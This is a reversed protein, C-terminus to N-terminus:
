NRSGRGQLRFARWRFRLRRALVGAAIRTRHWPTIDINRFASLVLSPTFLSSVGPLLFVRAADGDAGLLWHQRVLELVEKRGPPRGAEIEARMHAHRYNLWAHLAESENFALMHQEVAVNKRGRLGVILTEIRARIHIGENGQMRGGLRELLDATQRLQSQRVLIWTDPSHRMHLLLRGYGEVLRLQIDLSISSSPHVWTTVASVIKRRSSLYRGRIWDVAAEREALRAKMSEERGGFARRWESRAELYRGAGWLADAYRDADGSTRPGGTAAFGKIVENRVGMRALLVLSAEARSERSPLIGQSWPNTPSRLSIVSSTGPIWVTALDQLCSSLQDRVIFTEAGFARAERLLAHGDCAAGSLGPAPKASYQLWVVKRGALLNWRSQLYPTADFFDSGSYGAFVLVKVEPDRIIRDLGERVAQPFGNEITGIRAGLQAVNGGPSLSGHFHLPRGTAGLLRSAEEICVDFNATIHQGGLHLHRAFFEHNLNPSALALDSLVDALGPLGYVETLADLVTELRPRFQANLVRLQSYLSSLNAGLGPLFYGTLARDTLTRGSPGATPADISIGAGTWFAVQKPDYSAIFSFGAVSCVTYALSDSTLM